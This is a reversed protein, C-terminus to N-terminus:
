INTLNKPTIDKRIWRGGNSDSEWHMLQQGVTRDISERLSPNFYDLSVFESVVRELRLFTALTTYCSEFEQWLDGPQCKGLATRDDLVNNSPSPAIQLRLCKLNRMLLLFQCFYIIHDIPFVAIFDLSTLSEFSGDAMSRIFEEHDWPCFTSPTKKFFYEYSSYGQVSSGQNFTCHTWPCMQFVNRSEVISQSTQFSLALDRPMRLDLVQYPVSFVWQDTLDLQYPLINAFLSPSLTITMVSPKVSDTVRVMPLWIEFEASQPNPDFYLMLNDVLSSLNHSKSFQLFGDIDDLNVKVASFLSPFCIERVARCAQSLSKLPRYSSRLLCGSPEEHLLKASPPNEEALVSIIQEVLEPPLDLFFAM